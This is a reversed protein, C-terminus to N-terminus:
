SLKGLEYKKFINSATFILSDIIGAISAVGGIIACVNTLFSYLPKGAKHYKVTIPNLDYKFWIASMVRGSFASYSIYSKYQYSFQYSNLIKSRSTAQYITPVLRLQYEHTEVANASSKDMNKLSNFSGLINLNALDEGFKLDHIVHAMDINDPQHKASHTSVHFNGPSKNIFFTSEFNCGKNDHIPTKTTDNLFGVEHRGGEDQIDLGVVDCSLKPLSINLYVNIKDSYGASEINEVFLESVIEPSLYSALECILLIIIITVCCISIIAGTLTPETLDKNIKRYIDFKKVDIQMKINKFSIVFHSSLILHCFNAQLCAVISSLFVFSM